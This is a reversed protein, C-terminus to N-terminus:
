KQLALFSDLFEHAVRKIKESSGEALADRFADVFQSPKQEIFRQQTLARYCTLTLSAQDIAQQPIVDDVLIMKEQQLWLMAGLCRQHRDSPLGYEDLEMPGAIDDIYVSHKSPFAQYLRLLTKVTDHCFDEIHLDLMYKWLYRTYTYVQTILGM